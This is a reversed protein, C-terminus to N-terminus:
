KKGGEWETILNNIVGFRTLIRGVSHSVLDDITKPKNYFSPLAPAIIVGMKALKLMNELHITSFPTERPVILLKRGEKLTVDAVRELLNSSIGSSIRALCGMSCPAIIMGDIIVSGSAVTAYFNSLDYVTLFKSKYPYSIGDVDPIEDKLIHEATKTVILDVKIKLETLIKVIRCGYIVGTAGGIGVVIRKM